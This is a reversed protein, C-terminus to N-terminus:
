EGRLVHRRKEVPYAIVCCSMKVGPKFQFEKFRYNGGTFDSPVLGWDMIFKVVLDGSPDDSSLHMMHVFVAVNLVILTLSVFPFSRREVNDGIPLFLM